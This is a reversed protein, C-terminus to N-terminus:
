AVEKDLEFNLSAFEGHLELAAKDRAKAAEAPCSFYGVIKRQGGVSVNARWKGGAKGWSVWHVGKYGSKNTVSKRANAQNQSNTALRLNSRQNNLGNGDIHDVMLGKPEGMLFRHLYTTTWKGDDRKFRRVAYVVNRVVLAVWRFGSVRGYDEDDVLAAYGQSLQIERM